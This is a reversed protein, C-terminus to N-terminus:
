KGEQANSWKKLQVALHYRHQHFIRVFWRLRGSEAQNHTAAALRAGTPNAGAVAGIWGLRTWARRLAVELM